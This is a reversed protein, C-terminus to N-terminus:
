VAWKGIEVSYSNITSEYGLLRADSNDGFGDWSVVIDKLDNIYGNLNTVHVEGGYPPTDDLIFGNSCMEIKMFTETFTERTINSENASACIYYLTNLKITEM